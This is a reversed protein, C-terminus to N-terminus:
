VLIIDICSDSFGLFFYAEIAVVNCRQCAEFRDFRGVAQADRRNHSSGLLIQMLIRQNQISFFHLGGKQNREADKEFWGDRRFGHRPRSFLKRQPM